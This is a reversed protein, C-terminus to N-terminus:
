QQPRPGATYSDVRLPDTNLGFSFWAVITKCDASGTKVLTYIAKNRM